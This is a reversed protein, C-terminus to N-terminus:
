IGIETNNNNIRINFLKFYCTCARFLNPMCGDSYTSLQQKVNSIGKKRSSYLFGLHYLCWHITSWNFPFSSIIVGNKHDNIYASAIALWKM